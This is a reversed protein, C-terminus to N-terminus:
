LLPLLQLALSVHPIPFCPTLSWFRTKWVGLGAADGGLTPFEGSPPPFPFLAEAEGSESERMGGESGAGVGRLKRSSLFVGTIKLNDREGPTGLSTPGWIVRGSLTM